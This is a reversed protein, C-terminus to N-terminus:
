KFFYIFIIILSLSVVKGKGNKKLGERLDIELHEHTTHVQIGSIHITSSPEIIKRMNNKKLDETRYRKFKGYEPGSFDKTCDDPPMNIEQPMRVRDFRSFTVALNQGRLSVGDMHDRAICAFTATTFEILACSNARRIIKVREVDGYFSFINYLM